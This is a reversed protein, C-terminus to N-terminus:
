PTHGLDALLLALEDRQSPSLDQICSSTDCAPTPTPAPAPGEISCAAVGAGAVVGAYFWFVAPRIGAWLRSVGRMFEELM